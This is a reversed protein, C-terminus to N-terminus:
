GVPDRRPILRRRPEPRDVWDLEDPLFADNPRDDYPIQPKVPPIARIKLAVIMIALFTAAVLWPWYTSLFPRFAQVFADTATGAVSDTNQAGAEFRDAVASASTIAAFSALYAATVVPWSPMGPWGSRWCAVYLLLAFGIAVLLGDLDVVWTRGTLHSGPLLAYSAVPLTLAVAAVVSRRAGLAGLIAGLGTCVLLTVLVGRQEAYAARDVPQSRALFWLGTGLAVTLPVAIRIRGTLLGAVVGGIAAGTAVVDIGSGALPLLERQSWPAMADQTGFFWPGFGLLYWAVTACPVSWVARRM